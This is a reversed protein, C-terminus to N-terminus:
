FCISNLEEKKKETTSHKKAQIPTLQNLFM